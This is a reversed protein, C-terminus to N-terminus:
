YTGRIAALLDTLYNALSPNHALIEFLMPEVPKFLMQTWGPTEVGEIAKPMNRALNRLVLVASLPIGAADGREDIPGQEYMWKTTVAPEIWSPRSNLGQSPDKRVPTHTKIHCVCQRPTLATATRYRTCHGWKCVFHDYPVSIFKGDENKSAGMHEILLHNYM